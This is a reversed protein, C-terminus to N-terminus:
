TGSQLVVQTNKQLRTKPSPQQEKVVGTGQFKVKLGMNELLSVADMVPMGKLDPMYRWKNSLKKDYKSYYKDLLAYDKDVDDLYIDRPTASFIKKAIKLFVPAAVMRGTYGRKRPKHVVVICSYEPNEVPFFGAFSSVYYMHDTWYEAQCTGTKGALSYDKMYINDATGRRVVNQLIQKLQALTSSSCIKKDIVETDWTKIDKQKSQNRIREVFLPKVMRGDNAIANYFTLIQLPTLKVGYGFSLWPLTTGSWKKDGPRIIFPEAEGKLPIGIKQLIHMRELGKIFKEPHDKYARHIMKAFVVNSSVELGRALSIVGYGGEHSDKVWKDYIKWKGGETDFTRATDAVKDELATALSMVKFVSGPEYAEGVAYNYEEHYEGNKGLGLNSMAKIKGTKVEMVIVSGHEAEHEQMAELLAQHAIDQINVDITTVIDMGDQPEVENNSNVPKWHGKAIRQKLSYGDKGALYSHYAGEIGPRGRYDDYGILRSAMKGLPHVRYTNQIAILGGRYPGKNFVPLQKIETYELYSLGRAIFLYRSGKKRAELILKKYYSAPKGLIRSLGKALAPLNKMLTDRNVTMVDMRIEYKYMSTALLSGDSAYVSGKNAKITDVKQIVNKAIKRYTSGQAWQIWVLKVFIVLLMIMMIFVPYKARQILIKKDVSM